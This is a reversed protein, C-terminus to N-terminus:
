PLRSERNGQSPQRSPDRPTFLLTDGGWIKQFKSRSYSLHGISPDLAEVRGDASIHTVVLFHVRHVWVLAPLPARQFDDFTFHWGEVHLGKSEAITKLTLMSTGRTTPHSLSRLEDLSSQIGFHDLVMKLATPGCEQPSRQLLVGDTGLFEAGTWWAATLRRVNSNNTLLPLSGTMGLLLFALLFLTLAANTKRM